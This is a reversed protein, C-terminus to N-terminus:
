GMVLQDTVFVRECKSFCDVLVKLKTVALKDISVRQAHSRDVIRIDVRIHQRLKQACALIFIYDTKLALPVKVFADDVESLLVNRYVSNVQGLRTNLAKTLILRNESAIPRVSRWSNVLTHLMIDLMQVQYSETM